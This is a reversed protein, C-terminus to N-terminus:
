KQWRLDFGLISSGKPVGVAASITAHENRPMYEIARFGGLRCLFHHSITTIVERATGDFWRLRIWDTTTNRYLRTVRRPVLAGRGKDARADFALVVDGVRLASIATSTTRSTQIPTHAPFCQAGKDNVYDPIPGLISRGHELYGNGLLFLHTLDAQYRVTLDNVIKNYTEISNSLRPIGVSNIGGFENSFHTDWQRKVASEYDIELKEAGNGFKVLADYGFGYANVSRNNALYGKALKSGEDGMMFSVLALNYKVFDSQGITYELLPGSVGLFDTNADWRKSGYIEAWGGFPMNFAFNSPELEFNSGVIEVM